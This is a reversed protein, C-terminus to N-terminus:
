RKELVYFVNHSPMNEGLFSRSVFDAIKNIKANFKPPKPFILLPHVIKSILTYTGFYKKARIIFYNSLFKELALEDLYVNNPYKEIENLGVSKRLKDVAIHGQLTIETMLLLGKPRLISHLNLIARKQDDWSPLNIITREIIVKDFKDKLFSLDLVDGVLFELKGKKIIESYKKKAAEIFQFTYDFGIIKKVFQSYFATAYGNGCGADLVFDDRHLYFSVVHNSLNRFHIDRMITKSHTPYKKAYEQWRNWVLQRQLKIKNKKM